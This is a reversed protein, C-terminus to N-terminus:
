ARIERWCQAPGLGLKEMKGPRYGEIVADAREILRLAAAVGESKTLDICISRRGRLVPHPSQARKSRESPRKEIRVIEAGLDGLLMAAFPGPGLGAFEVIRIDHLPGTM